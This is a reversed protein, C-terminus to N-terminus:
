QMVEVVIRRNAGALYSASDTAGHSIVSMRLLPIGLKEHLHNKVVEARAKALEYNYDDSGMGDSHGHIGIHYNVDLKKAYEAVAKLKAVDQDGLYPSNIPFLTKDETLIASYVVKGYIKRPGLGLAALADEAMRAVEALRKEMQALRSDLNAESTQMRADLKSDMQALQRVESQAQSQRLAQLDGQIRSLLQNNSNGQRELEARLSDLQKESADQRSTLQRLQAAQQEAQSQRLDQLERHLRAMDSGQKDLRTETTQMREEAQKQQRALVDTQAQQRDLLTQLQRDQGTLRGELEQLRADQRSFLAKADNASGQASRLGAELRSNLQSIQQEFGPVPISDQGSGQIPAPSLTETSACGGLLALSLSALFCKGPTSLFPVSM